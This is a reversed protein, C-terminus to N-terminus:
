LEIRKDSKYILFGNRNYNTTGERLNPDKLVKEVLWDPNFSNESEFYKKLHGTQKCLFYIGSSNGLNIIDNADFRNLAIDILAKPFDFGTSLYILQGSIEDGGGRPNIEILYIENNKIKFEIHCACNDLKLANLIVSILNPFRDLIAKDLIAPQHHALEVFHPPGSNVKDTFQLIYHKGHFSITEVSIENGEVCEEILIGSEDAAEAAYEFAKDIDKENKIFQVGKKGGGHNPKVIYPFRKEKLLYFEELTYCNIKSLGSISNTKERVYKKDTVHLFDTFNISTLGLQTSLFSTVYATKESGNSTIGTIREEKCIEIIKDFEYISVPYFKTPLEKGLAGEEWAFCITYIGLEKAKKLLPLQGLSAGIIALREM